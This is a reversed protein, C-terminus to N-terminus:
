TGKTQLTIEQNPVRHQMPYVQIFVFGCGGGSFDSHAADTLVWARLARTIGLNLCCSVFDSSNWQIFIVESNKQETGGGAAAWGEEPVVASKSPECTLLSSITVAFSLVLASCLVRQYVGALRKGKQFLVGM